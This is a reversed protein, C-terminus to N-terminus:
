RSLWFENITAQRWVHFGFKLFIIFYMQSGMDSSGAAKTRSLHDLIVYIQCVIIWDLFRLHCLMNVWTKNFVIFILIILMQVCLRNLLPSRREVGSLGFRCSSWELVTWWHRFDRLSIATIWGSEFGCSELHKRSFSALLFEVSDCFGNM